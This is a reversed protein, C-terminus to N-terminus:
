RTPWPPSSSPRWGGRLAIRRAEALVAPEGAVGGHVRPEGRHRPGDAAAVPVRAGRVPHRPGLGARLEDHGLAGACDARWPACRARRGPGPGRRLSGPRAVRVVRHQGGEAGLGPGGRLHGQGRRRPLGAGAVRRGAGFLDQEVVGGVLLATVGADFANGGQVLTEFAAASTLPHGTSLGASPGSVAPRQAQLVPMTLVLALAVLVVTLRHQMM